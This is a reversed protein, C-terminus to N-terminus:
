KGEVDVNSILYMLLGVGPDEPNFLSGGQMKAQSVSQVGVYLVLANMFPINYNDGLNSPEPLVLRELLSPLITPSSRHLLIQDLHGRIIDSKLAGAYDSLVAPIPGLDSTADLIEGQLYPDPLTMNAPFACSIINCFQMCRSSLANTLSFYYESLFDPFDHLLVMLVRLTARYLQTVARSMQGDKMITAM